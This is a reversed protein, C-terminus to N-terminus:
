TTFSANLEEENKQFVLTGRVSAIRKEVERHFEEDTFRPLYSPEDIWLSFLPEMLNPIIELKYEEATQYWMTNDSRLRVEVHAIHTENRPSIDLFKFRVIKVWKM